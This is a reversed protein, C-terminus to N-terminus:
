VVYEEIPRRPKLEGIPLALLQQFDDVDWFEWFTLMGARTYYHPLDKVKGYATFFTISPGFPPDHMEILRHAVTNPVYHNSLWRRKRIYSSDLDTEPNDWIQETYGGWVAYTRFDTFHDHPPFLAEAGKFVHFGFSFRPCKFITYRDFAMGADIFTFIEIPYGRVKFRM